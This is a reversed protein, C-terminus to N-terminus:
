SIYWEVYGQITGATISAITPTAIIRRDVATAQTNVPTPFTIRDNLVIISTAPIMSDDDDTEIWLQLLAWVGTLWSAQRITNTTRFNLILNWLFIPSWSLWNNAAGTLTQSFRKRFYNNEITTQSLNVTTISTISPLQTFESATFTPSPWSLILAFGTPSSGNFTTRNFNMTGTGTFLTNTAFQTIKNFTTQSLNVVWLIGTIALTGNIVMNNITSGNATMWLLSLNGGTIDSMRWGIYWQWTIGGIWGANFFDLYINTTFTWPFFMYRKAFQLKKIHINTNEWRRRSWPQLTGTSDFESLGTYEPVIFRDECTIDVNNIVDICRRVRTTNYVTTWNYEIDYIVNTSVAWRQMNRIDWAVITTTTVTVLDTNVWPTIRELAIYCRTATTWSWCVVANVVRWVNANINTAVATATAVINAWVPISATLQNVWAVNVADVSGVAWEIFFAWFARFNNTKIWSGKPEFANVSWAKLLVQWWDIPDTILYNKWPVLTSGTIMADWQSRTISQSLWSNIMSQVQSTILSM